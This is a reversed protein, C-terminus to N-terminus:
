RAERRAAPLVGAAQRAIELEEDTPVVLVTVAAGAPSIVREGHGARNREVDVAIGLRELGALSRERVPASNEGVGATFAIADLRGLAAYYAGVYCRIRYCYVDLALRAGAEGRGARDTVERVDAAGALALLGSEHNLRDHVDDPALGAVRHLYEPLAPDVDGSRTGMVLGPLPTLGMSTDISRGGDVACASAGNGLHLVITALEAVPRGLLAAVRRSVYAHSTGHFGYRRVGFRERWEAPVAYTAARAPLDRHFATDFVAVHPVGPLRERAARIGTACAPNHLPALEALGDVARLVDDDVVTPDSFRDGGHVVRHGVAVLDTALDPGHEAFAALVADLAAAHDPVAREAAHEAPAAGAASTRHTLRGPGDGIREVAGSALVREGALELLRYKVSSSGCNLVLVRAARAPDGGAPRGAAAVDLSGAV